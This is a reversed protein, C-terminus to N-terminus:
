PAPPAAATAGALFSLLAIFMGLKIYRASRPADGRWLVVLSYLFVADAVAVVPLYASGLLGTLYPLPSLLVGALLLAAAVASSRRVGIRLPLTSCSDRDGRLDAIDKVIERSTNALAALAALILTAGPKGAAVGGYLFPSAVLYSVTLNKSLGGARKIRSAYAYLLASNVAALLFAPLSIAASLAVGAFFLLLAYSRAAARSLAGRPLPRHPANIRDIDYDYYDNIVNGAGCVLFAVLCALLVGTGFSGSAIGAGLFVAFAAMACNVPRLIEVYAWM